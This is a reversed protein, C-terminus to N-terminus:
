GSGDRHLLSALSLRARWRHWFGLGGLLEASRDDVERWYRRAREDDVPTPSFQAADAAPALWDVTLVGRGALDEATEARTHWGSPRYGADVATDVLQQWGGTIRDAARAAALRRRRRHAKIALIVVIPTAFVALVLLTWGLMAVLLAPMFTDVDAPAPPVSEQPKQEASETDVADPQVQPLAPPVEVAVERRETQAQEQADTLPKDPSPTPDFAVWGIGDFPVEVWATIDRGRLEVDGQTSGTPALGVVVRAPIGISRVMLAMLAAYQEQDGVMSGSGVMGVLRDLGHGAPSIPEGAIGHSFFGDRALGARIAEVQAAPTIAGAIYGDTKSRVVDPASVGALMTVAMPRAAALQDASPPAPVGAVVRYGDGSQWGVPLLGTTAAASYRLDGTLEDARAGTFDLGVIPGPLPLFPGRYGDVRVTLEVPAANAPAPRQPGIRVFPGEAESLRFQRGDYDDLAALRLRAGTPLGRVVLQVEDAHDKTYSRFLSLPSDFATPDVPAQVVQRLAVRDATGGSAVLGAVVAAVTLIAGSLALRRLAPAGDTGAVRDRVLQAAAAREALRAARGGIWVVWGLGVTLMAAAVVVLIWPASTVDAFLAFAVAAAAPGTLALAPRRTAVLVGGVTAGFAAILLPPVLLGGTVGTPTAVTLLDRWGDFAGVVVASMADRSPLIQLVRAQPAIVLAGLVLVGLPILPIAPWWPLSWRRLVGLVTAPVAAGVAATVVPATSGYAPVLLLSGVVVLGVVVALDAWPWWRGSGIAIRSRGPGRVRGSVSAGGWRV